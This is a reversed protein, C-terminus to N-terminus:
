YQCCASDFANSNQGIFCLRPRKLFATHLPFLNFLQQKKETNRAKFDERFDSVVKKTSLKTICMSIFFM